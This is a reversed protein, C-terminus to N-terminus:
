DGPWSSWNEMREMEVAAPHASKWARKNHGPAWYVTHLIDACYEDAPAGGCYLAERGADASRETACGNCTAVLVSPVRLRVLSIAEIKSLLGAGFLRSAVRVATGGSLDACAARRPGVGDSM